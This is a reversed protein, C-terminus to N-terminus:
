SHLRQYAGDGELASVKTGIHDAEALATRVDDFQVKEPMNATPPFAVTGEAVAAMSAEDLSSLSLQELTTPLGVQCFFGAVRAATEPRGELLLQTLVGFAVMEGHLHRHHVEEIATLSMGVGHAAALGGSEFGLGSLLTNAEIVRELSDDVRDSRVAEAASVGDQFLTEACKEGIATAALTPRGGLVNVGQPNEAAVRAEYWTAMADGMGAVLYREPAAAVLESDVLVIAPSDEYFEVGAYVGNTDYIVAVASCPADNSALTPAAVVPVALRHAIAKGADICKGGGLAVLACVGSGSLDAVRGEVEELSAEGGFGLFRGELGSSELSSRITEGHAGIRSPSALIAVRECDLLRLYVGLRSLVGPGQIYRAPSIFVRTSSDGGFLQGPDFPRDGSTMRGDGHHVM